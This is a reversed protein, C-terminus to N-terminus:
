VNFWSLLLLLLQSLFSIDFNVRCIILFKVNSIILYEFSVINKKFSQFFDYSTCFLPTLIRRACELWLLRVRMASFGAHNRRREHRSLLIACCRIILSRLPSFLLRLLWLRRCVRPSFSFACRKIGKDSHFQDVAFSSRFFTPSTM